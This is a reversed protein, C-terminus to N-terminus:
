KAKPQPQFKRLMLLLPPVLISASVFVMIWRRDTRTHPNKQQRTSEALRVMEPDAVRKWQDNTVIYKVTHDEPLNHPRSDYAFLRSPPPTRSFERGESFTIQNVTIQTLTSVFLYGNTNGVWAPIYRRLVSRLPFTTEGINTSELMQYHLEEFGKDFPARFPKIEDLNDSGIDLNIGNNTIFLEKLFHAQPGLYTATYKGENQPHMLLSVRCTPVNLFRRMRNGRIVPLLPNPCLSLWSDFMITLGPPPFAAPCVDAPTMGKRTDGEFLTYSRTGDPIKMCCQFSPKNQQQNPYKIEVQWWDNSHHFFFEANVNLYPESERPNRAELSITGAAFFPPIVEKASTAFGRALFINISLHLLGFGVTRQAQYIALSCKFPFSTPDTKLM